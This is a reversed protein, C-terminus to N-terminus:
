NLEVAARPLWDTIDEFRSEGVDVPLQTRPFLQNSHVIRFRVDGHLMGCPCATMMVTGSRLILVIAPHSRSGQGPSTTVAGLRRSASRCAMLIINPIPRSPSSASAASIQTPDSYTRRTPRSSLLSFATDCHPRASRFTYELRGDHSRNQDLLKVGDAYTVTDVATQALGYRTLGALVLVAVPLSRFM